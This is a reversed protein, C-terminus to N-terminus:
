HEHRAPRRDIEKGLQEAEANGVPHAIEEREQAATGIMVRDIQQVALGVLHVVDGELRLIPLMDARGAIEEALLLNRQDPSRAAVADAVVDKM